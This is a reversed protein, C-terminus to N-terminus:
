GSIFGKFNIKVTKIIDKWYSNQLKPSTKQGESILIYRLELHIQLLQSNWKMVM